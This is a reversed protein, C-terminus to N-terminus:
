NKGHKVKIAGTEKEGEKWDDYISRKLVRKISFRLCCVEDINM